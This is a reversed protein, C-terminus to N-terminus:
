TDVGEYGMELSFGFGRTVKGIDYDLLTRGLAGVTGVGVEFGGVVGAVGEGVWLRALRVGCRRVLPSLLLLSFM